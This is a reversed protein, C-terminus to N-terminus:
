EEDFRQTLDNDQDEFFDEDGELSRIDDPDYGEEKLGLDLDLDEEPLPTTAATFERPIAGVSRTVRPYDVQPDAAVIKILEIYFTWYNIYDYVYILRQHPDDIFDCLASDKMVTVKPSSAASEEDEPELKVEEEPNMDVLSIEQQKRFNHDCIFFSSLMGPDLNLNNVIAHHFDEFTLDSRLEIDRLFDDQDEFNIRFKYALM